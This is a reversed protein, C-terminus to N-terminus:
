HHLVSILLLAYVITNHVLHLVISARVSGTRERLYSLAVGLPLTGLIDTVSSISHLVAFIIATVLITPWASLKARLSTFLWGRVVLEEMGAALLVNSVFDLLLPLGSAAVTEPQVPVFHSTILGGAENLALAAVLLVVFLLGHRRWDWPHWAIAERWLAGAHWRAIVVVAVMVSLQLLMTVALVANDVAPTDAKWAGIILPFPILIFSAPGRERTFDSAAYFHAL